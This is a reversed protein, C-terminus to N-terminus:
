KTQQLIAKFLKDIPDISKRDITYEDIFFMNLNNFAERSKRFRREADAYESIVMIFSNLIINEDLRSNSAIEIEKHKIEEALKIKPNSELNEIGKLIGKPDIFNIYQKDEEKIWLIFDPYYSEVESLFSVGKSRTLNRLLFIEKDKLLDNTKNDSLYDRLLNVFKKESDELGLPSSKVEGKQGLLPQFLHRDFYVNDLEEIDNLESTYLKDKENNLLRMVKDVLQHNAKDIELIYDQFNPDDKSLPKYVLKDDQFKKKKIRIFKKIYKKLTRRAIDEIRNMDSFSKLKLTENDSYIVYVESNLIERLTEKKIVLNNFKKKKKYNVMDLYLRDWNILELHEDSFSRPKYVKEEDPHNLHLVNRSALKETKPRLNLEVKCNEDLELEIFEDRIFNFEKKMKITYLNKDLFKKNEKIPLKIKEKSGTDIGEEELYEKFKEMYDAKIGFINLTELLTINEPHKRDNFFTSRKLSNNLGKLRVGRGFLQIIQSGESRGINLLGINSVRYSNWGETFKKSGILMNINSNRNNINFFLSDSFDDEKIVFGDKELEGTLKSVNGINILAFYDEVGKLKLGIEGDGSQIKYLELDGAQSPTNFILKMVDRYVEEGNLNKDKLYPYRAKLLDRDDEDVFGSKNDLITEIQDIIKKSNSLFDKIFNIVFEIDSVSKKDANSLNGSPAIVTNGVFLLLPDELKYDEIEKENEKFYLKQEYFSLLNALLFKNNYERLQAKKLNLINYDKGYGDKYFYKYSYDFIIAKSYEELLNDYFDKIQKQKLPSLGYEKFKKELEYMSMNIYTNNKNINFLDKKVEEDLNLNEVKQNYYDDENNIRKESRDIRDGVAQGFTASYEFIFGDEALKERNEKWVDGGSGKHGEDIFVLNRGELESIEISEGEGTTTEKLKTVEIAYIDHEKILGGGLESIHDASISSKEFEELHQESLGSNPTVLIVNDIDYNNYKEFQLYNIHMILTKGSGTAMYYALKNLDEDNYGSFKNKDRSVEENKKDIFNNLEEKLREKANFYKDLFIETFLVSLYQFYKLVIAEDRNQNIYDVYGKINQDYTELKALLGDEIDLNSSLLSQLIYSKGEEDFGDQSYQPNVAQRLTKTENSTFNAFEEVGFLSLLYKNLIARDQLKM